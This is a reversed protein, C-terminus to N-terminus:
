VAEQPEKKGFRLQSLLIGFLIIASGIYMLLTMREGLFVAAFFCGLVSESALILSAIDSRIKKQSVAQLFAPIATSFIVCYILSLVATTDPTIRFGGDFIMMYAFTFVSTTLYMFFMLVSPDEKKTFVGLSCLHWAFSFAALIMLLDGGGILPGGESGLDRTLLFLGVVCIAVSIFSKVPPRKKNLIWYVFPVFIINLSTIFSAKSSTTMLLGVTQSLFGVFYLFGLIAGRLVSKLTVTKLKPLMPFFFILASFAMRFFVMTTASMSRLGVAMAVFSGSWMISAMCLLLTSKKETLNDTLSM